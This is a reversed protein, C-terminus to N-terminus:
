GWGRNLASHVAQKTREVVNQLSDDASKMERFVGQQFHKSDDAQSHLYEIRGEFEAPNNIQGKLQRMRAADQEARMAAAESGEEFTVMRETVERSNELVNQLKVQVSSQVRAIGEQRARLDEMTGAEQLQSIQQEMVETDLQLREQESEALVGVRKLGKLHGVQDVRSNFNLSM